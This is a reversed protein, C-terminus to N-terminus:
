ASQPVFRTFRIHALAAGLLKRWRRGIRYAPLTITGTYWAPAAKYTTHTATVLARFACSTIPVRLTATITSRFNLGLLDAKEEEKRPRDGAGSCAVRASALTSIILSNLYTPSGTQRVRSSGAWPIQSLWATAFQRLKIACCGCSLESRIRKVGCCSTESEPLHM